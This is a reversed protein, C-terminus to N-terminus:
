FRFFNAIEAPFKIEQSKLLNNRSELDLKCIDLCIKLDAKVKNVLQAFMNKNRGRADIIAKILLQNDNPCSDGALNSVEDCIQMYFDKLGQFEKALTTENPLFVLAENKFILEFNQEPKRIILLWGKNKGVELIFGCGRKQSLFSLCGESQSFDIQSIIDDTLKEILWLTMEATLNKLEAERQNHNKCYWDDWDDDTINLLEKM